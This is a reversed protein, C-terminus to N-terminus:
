DAGSTAKALASKVNALADERLSIVAQDFVLMSAGKKYVEIFDTICQNAAEVALLLDPAAAILLANARSNYSKMIEAPMVCVLVDDVERPEWHHIFGLDKAVIHPTANDSLAVHWPGETHKQRETTM